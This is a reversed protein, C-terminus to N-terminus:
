KTFDYYMEVVHTLFLHLKKRSNCFLLLLMWDGNVVSIHSWIDQWFM